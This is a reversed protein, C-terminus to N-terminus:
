NTQGGSVAYGSNRPNDTGYFIGAGAKNVNDEEIRSGDTWVVIWGDEETEMQGSYKHDFYPYYCERM